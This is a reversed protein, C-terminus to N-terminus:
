FLHWRLLPAESAAGGSSFLHLLPAASSTSCFLHWGIEEWFLHWGIEQFLHVLLHWGIEQWLLHWGIEQQLPAVENQLFLSEPSRRLIPPGWFLHWGIEQFLHVSSTSCLLPASSTGGSKRSFLRWKM